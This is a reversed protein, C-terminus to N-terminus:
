LGNLLVEWDEKIGSAILKHQNKHLIIPTALLERHEIIEKIMEKCTLKELKKANNKYYYCRKSLISDFGEEALILLDKIEEESLKCVSTNITAHKINKADLWKQCERSNTMCQRTYLKIM